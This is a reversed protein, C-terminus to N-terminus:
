LAVIQALLLRSRVAARNVAILALTLRSRQVDRHAIAHTLPRRGRQNTDSVTGLGQQSAVDQFVDLVPNRWAMRCPVSPPASCPHAAVFFVYRCLAFPVSCTSVQVSHMHVFVRCVVFARVFAYVHM